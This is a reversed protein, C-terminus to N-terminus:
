RIRIRKRRGRKGGGGRGGDGEEEGESAQKKDEDEDEQRGRSSKRRKHPSIFGRYIEPEINGPDPSHRRTEAGRLPGEGGLNRDEDGACLCLSLSM